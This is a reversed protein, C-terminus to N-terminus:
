NRAGFSQFNQGLLVKSIRSAASGDGYPTQGLSKTQQSLKLRQLQDELGVRIQESDTGIVRMFGTAVGEERESSERAVLVFKGLSVAEEQVGGSDTLVMESKHLLFLFESYGLPPLLFVNAMGELWSRILTQLEPNPHMSFVITLDPQEQAFTKIAACISSIGTKRNERRHATVMAFHNGLLRPEFESLTEVIQSRMQEDSELRALALHLTDVITNGTLFIKGPDVNEAILNQVSRETPAFNWTAIRSIVQRNMEEPFPAELNHTRLGAEVHGVPLGLYFAAQASALATSTDGHVLCADPRFKALIESLGLMVKSHLDQLSQGHYFVNLEYDFKPLEPFIDLAMMKAEHQGTFITVLEFEPNKALEMIVPAMKIMEPRTGVVVAARFTM